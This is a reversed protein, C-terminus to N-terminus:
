SEPVGETKVVEEKAQEQEQEQEQMMAEKALAPPLSVKKVAPVKATPPRPKSEKLLGTMRLTGGVDKEFSERSEAGLVKSGAAYAAAGALGVELLLDVENALVTAGAAVGGAALVVGAAQALKLPDGKADEVYQAASEKVTDVSDTVLEGISRATAKFPLRYESIWSECGGRVYKVNAGAQRAVTPAVTGDADILIYTKTDKATGADPFRQAFMGALAAPGSDAGRKTQLRVVAPARYAGAFDPEGAGRIADRPRVDVLVANSKQSASLEAYVEMASVGRGDAAKVTSGIADGVAQLARLVLAGAALTGGVILLAEGDVDDLPAGAADGAVAEGVAVAAAAAAEAAGDVVAVAEDVGAARPIGAAARARRGKGKSGGGRGTGAKRTTITTVGGM